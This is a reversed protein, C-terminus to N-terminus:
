ILRLILSPYKLIIKVIKYFKLFFNKEKFLILKLKNFFIERNNYFYMNKDMKFITKILRLNFLLEKVRIIKLKDSQTMSKKRDTIFTLYKPIIKCDYKSLLKISLNYDQSYELKKSYWGVKKAFKKRYAISSHAFINKVMMKKKIISNDHINEVFSNKRNIIPKGYIDLKKFLTAVLALNNNNKFERVQLKIRNKHMQDDADLITVIDGKIKKQAKCRSIGLGLHYKNRFLNIRKDKFSRIIKITSDGSADDWILIQIKKYSQNIVSNIAKSILQEENRCNILVTVLPHNNM